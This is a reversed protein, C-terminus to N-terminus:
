YTQWSQLEPLVEKCFLRMNKEADAGSLGGYSVQVTLDFDGIDARRQAM